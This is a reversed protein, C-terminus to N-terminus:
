RWKGKPGQSVTLIHKDEFPIIPALRKKSLIGRGKKICYVSDSSIGDLSDRKIVWFQDLLERDGIIGFEMFLSPNEKRIKLLILLKALKAKITPFMRLIDNIIKPRKRWFGRGPHKEEIFSNKSLVMRGGLEYMRMSFDLDWFVAVFNSDVGGVKKWMERKMLACHPMFPSKPEDIWYNGQEDTIDKGYLVNRSSLVINDDNIRRFEEYLNDLAHESFIFDDAFNMILEGTAYRAGIEVCQVPKVESYIFHCNSPLKFNPIKDGVFIVEFPVKNSALSNYMRMWLEPRTAPGFLSIIPDKNMIILEM